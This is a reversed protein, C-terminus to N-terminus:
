KNLTYKQLFRNRYCSIDVIYACICICLKISRFLSVTLHLCDHVCEPDYVCQADTNHKDQGFNVNINLMGGNITSRLFLSNMKSNPSNNIQLTCECYVRNDVRTQQTQAHSISSTSLVAMNNNTEGSLLSSMEHQQRNTLTRYNNLSQVNKRGSIESM